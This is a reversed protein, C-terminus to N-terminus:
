ILNFVLNKLLAEIKVPDKKDNAPHRRAKVIGDQHCLIGMQTPIMSQAINFFASPMLIWFEDCAYQLTSIRESKESDAEARRLQEIIILEPQEKKLIIVIEPQIKNNDTSVISAKPQYLAKYNEASEVGFIEKGSEPTLLSLLTKDIKSDETSSSNKENERLVRWKLRLDKRTLKKNIGLELIERLDTRSALRAIKEILEVQEATMASSMEILNPLALGDFSPGFSSYFRGAGFIRWLVSEQVKNREAMANLWATFSAYETQWSEEQHVKLLVLATNGWLSDINLQISM